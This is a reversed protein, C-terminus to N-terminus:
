ISWHGGPQIWWMRLLLFTKLAVANIKNYMNEYTFRHDLHLRVVFNVVPLPSLHALIM